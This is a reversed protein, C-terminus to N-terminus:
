YQRKRSRSPFAEWRSLPVLLDANAVAPYPNQLSEPFVVSDSMDLREALSTLEELLPGQGALVLKHEPAGRQLASAHARVLLDFGREYSLRGLEIIYAVDPLRAPSAEASLAVLRARDVGKEVM